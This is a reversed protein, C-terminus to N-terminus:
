IKRALDSSWHAIVCEKFQRKYVDLHTYSVPTSGVNASTVGYFEIGDNFAVPKMDASKVMTALENVQRKYVDLHTYSVPIDSKDMPAALM